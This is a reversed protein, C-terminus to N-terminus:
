NYRTMNCQLWLKHDPVEVTVRFYLTDDMLYQMKKVPNHSIESRPIFHDFGLQDNVLMQDETTISLTVNYHNANELQNLLTFTVRGIFPWSLKKDNDGSLVYFYTSIHTDDDSFGVEVGVRYGESSTYFPHTIFLEDKNKMKKDYNEVKFTISQRDKLLTKAREEKLQTIADIAMHLHLKDDEEHVAKDSRTVKVKCGLGRYKCSLLAFDCKTEHDKLTGVTGLWACKANGCKVALCRITRKVSLQLIIIIQM